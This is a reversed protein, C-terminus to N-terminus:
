LGRDQMGRRAEGVGVGVGVGLRNVKGLLSEDVGVGGFDGRAIATGDEGKGDCRRGKTAGRWPDRGTSQMQLGAAKVNWDTLVDLNGRRFSADALAAKPSITSSRVEAVGSFSESHQM